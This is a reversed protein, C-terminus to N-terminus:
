LGAERNVDKLYNLLTRREPSSGSGRYNLAKALRELFPKQSKLIMKEAEELDFWKAKDVEPFEKILGSGKPWEMKFTNSRIKSPDVDKELAWVHVIKGGAQRVEGLDILDGDVTFGTEEMFERKAAELPEEGEEIEGKPIM